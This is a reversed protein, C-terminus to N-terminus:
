FSNVPTARPVFVYFDFGFVMDRIPHLLAPNVRSRLPRMDLLIWNDGDTKGELAKLLVAPMSATRDFAQPPGFAQAAMGRLGVVNIHLSYSGNIEALESVMNGIDYQEFKSLGRSMHGSGFKLLVRPMEESRVAERYYEMFKSKMWRSRNRNNEYQKGQFWLMYIDQSKQIGSIIRHTEQQPNDAFAMKLKQYDHPSLAVMILKGPDGTQIVEDFAQRARDLYEKATHRSQEDHALEALRSFLYRPAAMFVQDIGWLRPKGDTLQALSQELFQFEEVWNYFPVSMPFAQNFTQFASKGNRALQELRSAMFPDTEICLYSFGAKQAERFLAGSFDPVERIGHQEGILVFQAGILAEVLGSGGKLLGEEVRLLHMQAQLEKILISDPDEAKAPMSLFLLTLFFVIRTSNLKTTFSPNTKLVIM